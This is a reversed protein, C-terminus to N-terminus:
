VKSLPLNLGMRRLVNSRLFQHRIVGAVHLFVLALFLRTMLFHAQITLVTRDLVAPDATFPTTNNVVFTGMGSIGIGLLVIYISWQIISHLWINWKETMGEPTPQPNRLRIFIRALTSLVILLGVVGHIRYVMMKQPDGDKLGVMITGAAMLGVLLFMSGWHLWKSLTSFEFPQITKNM